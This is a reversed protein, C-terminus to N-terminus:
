PVVGDTTWKRAVSGNARQRMQSSPSDKARNEGALRITRSMKTDRVIAGKKVLAKIHCMVGNPSSISCKDGIERITPSYGHKAIYNKIFELIEEQRDTLM